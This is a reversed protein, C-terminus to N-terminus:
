ETHVKRKVVVGGDKFEVTCQREKWDDILWQEAPGRIGVEM